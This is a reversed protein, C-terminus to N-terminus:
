SARGIRSVPTRPNSTMPQDEQGPAVESPLTTRAPGAGVRVARTGRAQAALGGSAAIM